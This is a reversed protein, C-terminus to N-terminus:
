RTTSPGTGHPTTLWATLIERLRKLHVSPLAARRALGKGPMLEAEGRPPNMRALSGPVWRARKELVVGPLLGAPGPASDHGQGIMSSAAQRATAV